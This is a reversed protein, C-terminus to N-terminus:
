RAHEFTGHVPDSLQVSFAEDGEELRDAVFPIKLTNTLERPALSQVGVRSVFDDPAAPVARTESEVRIETETTDSERATFGIGSTSEQARSEEM